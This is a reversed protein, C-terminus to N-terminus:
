VSSRVSSRAGAAAEVHRKRMANRESEIVGLLEMNTNVSLKRRWRAACEGVFAILTVRWESGELTKSLGRVLNGHQQEARQPAKEQAGQPQSDM